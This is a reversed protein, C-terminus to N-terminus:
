LQLLEKYYELTMKKVNFKNILTKYGRQGLIKMKKEDNLLKFLKHSFESYNKKNVLLGNYNNLIVESTGGIKTSVVPTNTSWAELIILCFSEFEQSTVACIDSFHMFDFIKDGLFKDYFFVSDKLCPNSTVSKKLKKSYENNIGGCVILNVNKNKRKLHNFSKIMFDHGKRKEYAGVMIINKNLNKIKLIKRVNIKKRKKYHYLGNYIIKVKSYGLRQFISKKVARSVVIVKPEIIKFLVDLLIRNIEFISFKKQVALNHINLIPVSKCAIKWSFCSTICSEGGPYGGNISIFKEYSKFKFFFYFFFIQYIIFPIFFLFKLVFDVYKQNLNIAELTPINLFITKCKKNKINKKYFSLNENSNNCLLFFEDNNSPWNNILNKLFTNTGGLKKSQIYVAIKM